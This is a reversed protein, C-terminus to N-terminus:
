GILAKAVYFIAMWSAGSALLCVGITRRGSWKKGGHRLAGDTQSPNLDSPFHSELNSM